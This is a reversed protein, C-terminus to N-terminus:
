LEEKFQEILKPIVKRLANREAQSINEMDSKSFAGLLIVLINNSYHYLIRLSGSKGRHSSKPSWRLKRVGGTLKIILGANPNESLYDYLEELESIALLKKVDKQFKATVKVIAKCM